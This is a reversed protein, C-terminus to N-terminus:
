IDEGIGSESQGPSNYPSHTRSIIHWNEMDTKVNSIGNRAAAFILYQLVTTIKSDSLALASHLVCM